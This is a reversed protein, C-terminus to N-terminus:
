PNLLYTMCTEALRRPMRIEIHYDTNIRFAIFRDLDKGKDVYEWPILMMDAVRARHEGRHRLWLGNADCEVDFVAYEGQTNVWHERGWPLPWWLVRESPGVFLTQRRYLYRDPSKDTLFHSALRAWQGIPRSQRYFLAFAIVGLIALLALAEKSM